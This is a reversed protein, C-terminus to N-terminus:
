RLGMVFQHPTCSSLGFSKRDNGWKGMLFGDNPDCGEAGDSGRVFEAGPPGEGDNVAGMLFSLQRAVERVGSYNGDDTAAAVKEEALCIGGIRGSIGAVIKPRNTTKNMIEETTVFIVASIPQHPHTKHWKTEVRTAQKKLLKKLVEANLRGGSTYAQKGPNWVSAKLFTLTVRLLNKQSEFIDNMKKVFKRLYGSEHKVHQKHEKSFLFYLELYASGKVSLRRPEMM